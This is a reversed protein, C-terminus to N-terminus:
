DKEGNLTYPGMDGLELIFRSDQSTSVWEYDEPNPKGGMLEPTEAPKLTFGTVSAPIEGLAHIDPSRGIGLYCTPPPEMRDEGM